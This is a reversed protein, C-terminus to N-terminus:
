KKLKWRKAAENECSKCIRKLKGRGDGRFQDIPMWGHNSCYREGNRDKEYKRRDTSKKRNDYLPEVKRLLEQCLNM